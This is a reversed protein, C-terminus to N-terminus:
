DTRRRWRLFEHAAGLFALLFAGGALAYAMVRPLTLLLVGTGLLGFLLAGAISRRAGGAVQRVARAAHEPLDGRQRPAGGGTEPVVAPPLRGALRRPALRRRLVIEVSSALDRRFQRAAVVVANEDEVLLDLEYNSVLSSPNLNSSGVKFWRDDVVVTKAHLMPGRWEWIRAGAELLERYGVRTLARVVPLDTRGPVLIRVDVGARAASLLTAYLSIPPVLYADTVWLRYAASAALLEVARVLRLRGPVGDIVRVLADGAADPQAPVREAPPDGGGQVWLRHFILDLASVAPGTLEVASDRWPERGRDPDGAWEDGICMGGVIATAADVAVYKRHDRRISRLPRFPNLPHFARVEVGAERLARWYARRTGRCGVADYLVRVAAGRVAAERLAAAFRRGTRDSRIIYNEFHVTRQAGAILALMRDLTEPGRALPRVTNGPITRAACARDLARDLPAPAPRGGRRVPPSSM